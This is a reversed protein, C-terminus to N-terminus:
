AGPASSHRTFREAHAYVNHRGNRLFGVLTLGATQAVEIAM